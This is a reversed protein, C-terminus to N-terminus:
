QGTQALEFVVLIAYYCLAIFTFYRFARILGPEIARAMCRAYWRSGM